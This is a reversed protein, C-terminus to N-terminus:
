DYKKGIVFLSGGFKNPLLRRLLEELDCLGKLLVNLIVNCEIGQAHKEYSTVKGSDPKIISRFLLLPVILQFFYRNTVIEFGNEKLESEIMEKTYRKKHGAIRDDRSWLWNHAPLTLIIHGNKKLAKHANKLALESDEIHELVDFMCVANFEEVFPSRLLDFQYCNKIGYSQAFELGSIHMEGVSINTYGSSILHRSVGGTGAGIEIINADNSIYKKMQNSIYKKRHVFWFHESEAKYLYELNRASYDKHSYAIDDHYIKIGNCEKPKIVM